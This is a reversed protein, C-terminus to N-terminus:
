GEAVKADDSCAILPAVHKRARGGQHDEKDRKEIPM